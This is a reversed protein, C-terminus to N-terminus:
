VRGTVTAWLLRGRRAFDSFGLRGEAVAAPDDAVRALTPRAMWASLLAPSRLGSARAADLDALGALALSRLAEASDDPLPLRGRAALAPAARLYAALGAARGAKLVAETGAGGCATVALAMLGGGTAELYGWLAAADAFPEPDLDHARAAVLRDLVPLPLGADRILDHLPAAVEHARAAGSGANEVVDRWWTLRMQGILPEASVWPARAVELNFAYLVFLGGRLPPPAAMTALFRDPDGRRVIEACDAVSM